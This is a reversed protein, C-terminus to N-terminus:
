HPGGMCQAVASSEAACANLDCNKNAVCQLFATFQPLCKPGTAVLATSCETSCSPVTNSCKGCFVGCVDVPQSGGSGGAGGKGGSGGKGSAGGAGSDTDGWPPELLETRNGCAMALLSAAAFLISRILASPM